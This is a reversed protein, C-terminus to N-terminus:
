VFFWTAEDLNSGLLIPCKKFEGNELLKIPDDTLFYNDVVPLYTFQAIGHDAKSFFYEDSKEIATKPEIM